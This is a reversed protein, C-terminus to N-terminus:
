SSDPLNLAAFSSHIELVINRINQVGNRPSLYAHRIIKFSKIIDHMRLSKDGKSM